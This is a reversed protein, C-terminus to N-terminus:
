GRDVGRAGDALASAQKPGVHRTLTAILDRRTPSGRWDSGGMDRDSNGPVDAWAARVVAAHGKVLTSIRENSDVRFADVAEITSPPGVIVDGGCECLGSIEVNGDHTGCALCLYSSQLNDRVARLQAITERAAILDAALDHFALGLPPPVALLERAQETTVREVTM